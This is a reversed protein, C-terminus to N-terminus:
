RLNKRRFYNRIIQGFLYRSLAFFLVFFPLVIENVFNFGEIFIYQDIIYFILVYGFYFITGFSRLVLQFYRYLMFTKFVEEIITFTLIVLALDIIDNYQAFQFLELIFFAFTFSLIYTFILNVFRNHHFVGGFEIAVVPQRKRKPPQQKHLEEIKKMVERLEELNEEDIQDQSKEKLEEETNTEKPEQKPENM